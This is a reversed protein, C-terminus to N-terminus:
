QDLQARCDLWLGRPESRLPDVGVARGLHDSQRGAHDFGTRHALDVLEDFGVHDEVSQQQLRRAVRQERAELLDQVLDKGALVPQPQHGDDGVRLGAM